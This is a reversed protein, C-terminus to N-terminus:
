ALFFVPFDLYKCPSYKLKGKKKKLACCIFFYLVDCWGYFCCLLILNINGVFVSFFWRLKLGLLAVDVRIFPFLFGMLNPVRTM